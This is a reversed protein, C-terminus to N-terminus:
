DTLWAKGGPQFKWQALAEMANADLLSDVGRVLQISDVTGDKRIIAYLVVEGEVHGTRLEPPYKPDVKRLPVPGAVDSSQGNVYGPAMDENLEAFNLIWSGSASTLNPMNVNVTYVRKAGLVADPSIGPKLITASQGSLIGSDPGLNALRPAPRQPLSISTRPSITSIALGAAPPTIEAKVSSIFIGDPGKGGGPLGTNGTSAGSPSAPPHGEPSVSIRAALNGVPVVPAPAVPGPTESLAILLSSSAGSTSPVFDTPSVAAEETVPNPRPATMPRVPLTPKALAQAPALNIAGIEIRPLALDPAVVDQTARQAPASPRMAGLQEASLQLKPRAPEISPLQVINPLVPLIKPPEPPQDPLFLVQRPHTPHLPEAIITQRPHFTPTDSKSSQEAAPDTRKPRPPRKAPSLNPLYQLPGFWTIETQSDLAPRRPPPVNWVPLPFLVLLVHCVVAGSFAIAPFREEICCDRIVLKGSFEKEPKPGGLAGRFSSILQERWGTWAVGLNPAQGPRVIVPGVELHKTTPAPKIADGFPM